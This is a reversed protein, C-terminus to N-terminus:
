ETECADGVGDGDTDLQNGNKVLPCNDADDAQGDNDDDPDCADGRDDLDTDQQDANALLVCNDIEDPVTDNDDDPDCADGQGDVESDLQNQNAHRPCNDVDDEFTDGDLDLDCADGLLDEDLDDQTPNAVWPCNDLFNAHGDGDLDPDCVDGLLDADVDSQGANAHGPCNDDCLVTQGGPCPHNGELGDFDGDEPVLDGDADPDICDALHDADLNTFGEDTQTDCDDDLGNCVESAQPSVTLSWDDCDGQEPTVGDGDRDPDCLDGLDDDDLDAQAPNGQQPCNDAGDAVGDGDDDPDLCDPTGDVDADFCEEDTLADCDDDKGNCFFCDGAAAQTEPIGPGVLPDLDDCDYGECKPSLDDDGDADCDCVDGQGDDDLDSQSANPLARCNDDCTTFAGGHCPNDNVAGSDDGDDLAGDDDDDPDICDALADGDTDVFGKDTYGDCDNDQGDCEDTAPIKAGCTLVGNTCTESGYCAGHVNQNKCVTGEFPLDTLGDCNDDKLNCKEQKPSDGLCPGLGEATCERVGPCAGYDNRIKCATELGLSLAEASCGCLGEALRCYPRTQGSPLTVDECLHGEPCGRDAGCASACFSGEEGYALCVVDVEYIPNACDGDVKCLRCLDLHNWACYHACPSPCTDLAVVCSWAPDGCAEGENCTTACRGGEGTTVCRESLCDADSTCPCNFIAYPPRCELPLDSQVDPATGDLDPGTDSPSGDTDPADSAGADVDPSTDASTTDPAVCVRDLPDASTRAECTWGEPCDYATRCALDDGGGGGACAALVAMVGLLVFRHGRTDM